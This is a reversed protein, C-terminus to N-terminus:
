SGLPRLSQGAGPWRSAGLCQRELAPGVEGSDVMSQYLNLIMKILFSFLTFIKLKLPTIVPNQVNKMLIKLCDGFHVARCPMSLKKKRLAVIQAILVNLLLM